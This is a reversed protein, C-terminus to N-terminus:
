EGCESILALGARLGVVVATATLDKAGKVFESATERPGVRGIIAVVVSLVVFAAGLEVLYWGQTAIGWVATGLALFFSLIILLHTVTLAPYERTASESAGPLPEMGM